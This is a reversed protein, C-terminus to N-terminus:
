GGPYGRPNGDKNTAYTPSSDWTTLLEMETEDDASTTGSLLTVTEITRKGGLEYDIAGSEEAAKARYYIASTAEGEAEGTLENWTEKNKRMGETNILRAIQPNKVHRNRLVLSSAGLDGWFGGKPSITLTGM